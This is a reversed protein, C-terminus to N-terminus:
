SGGLWVLAAVGALGIWGPHRAKTGVFVLIAAVLMSIALAFEIPAFDGSSAPQRALWYLMLGAGWGLATVAHWTAWLIRVHREMLVTGGDTPVLTGIRMRRFILIEGLVTHALGVLFILVAAGLLYWNIDM